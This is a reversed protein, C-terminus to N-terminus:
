HWVWLGSGDGHVESGSDALDFTTLDGVTDVAIAVEVDGDSAAGELFALDDIVEVGNGLGDGLGTRAGDFTFEDFGADKM